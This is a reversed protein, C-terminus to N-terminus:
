NSAADYLEHARDDFKYAEIDLNPLSSISLTILHSLAMYRGSHKLIISLYILTLFM